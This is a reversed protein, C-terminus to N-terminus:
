NGGSVVAPVVYSAQIGVLNSQYDIYGFGNMGWGAGWSNKILWAGQNPDDGYDMWGIIVIAHDPTTYPFSDQLVDGTYHIFADTQSVIGAVIPGYRALYAKIQTPQPINQNADVFGWDGVKFFLLSPDVSQPRGKSGTYAWPDAPNTKSLDVWPVGARMMDLADGWFGHTCDNPIISPWQANPPTNNLAYQESFKILKPPNNSNYIRTVAEFAGISSFAWCAGCNGQNNVQSIDALTRFDFQKKTDTGAPAAPATPVVGSPAGVAIARLKKISDINPPIQLGALANAGDRIIQQTQETTLTDANAAAADATAGVAAPQGAVAPRTLGEALLQQVFPSFAFKGKPHDKQVQEALAKAGGPTKKALIKRVDGVSIPVRATKATKAASPDQPTYAASVRGLLLGAALVGAATACLVGIRNSIPPM